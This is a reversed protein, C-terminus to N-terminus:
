PSKSLLLEECELFPGPAQGEQRADTEWLPRCTWKGSLGQQLITGQFTTATCPGCPRGPPHTLFWSSEPLLAWQGSVRRPLPQRDLSVHEAKQQAVPARSQHPQSVLALSSWPACGGGSTGCVRGARGRARGQPCSSGVLLPRVRQAERRPSMKKGGEPSGGVREDVLPRGQMKRVDHIGVDKVNVFVM